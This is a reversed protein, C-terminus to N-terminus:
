LYDSLAGFVEDATIAQVCVAKRGCMAIDNLGCGTCPIHKSVIAGAGDQGWENWNLRDVHVSVTPVGRVAALHKPGSDNGVMARAGSLITDFRAPKILGFVRVRGDAGDVGALGELVEVERDAFIAVQYPTEALLRRCLATFRETPWRNIAHRAGLHLVLYGNPELGLARLTEPDPDPALPVAPRAPTAAIVLAEVLMSVNAAHSLRELQNVKDRSRAAIGFDLFTFRDPNFGVLYTAGTLLLLPRSEDGPSLDIALDIPRAGLLRRVRDEEAPDLRRRESVPDYSLSIPLVEDTLGSGEIIAQTGPQALVTLRAAPFLARLRALAPLSASVDGLQDVRMALISGIPRDFLTRAAPRVTAPLATVARDLEGPAHPPAALFSNSSALIGADGPEGVNVFLGAPAVKEGVSVSLWHRGRPLTAADIWINFVYLKLANHGPVPQLPARTTVPANGQGVQVSVEALTGLASVRGRIAVVGALLPEQAGDREIVMAGVQDLKIAAYGAGRLRSSVHEDKGLVGLWGRPETADLRIRNPLLAESLAPVEERTRAIGVADPAEGIAFPLLITGARRGADAAQKRAEPLSTGGTVSSYARIAGRYDGFEKLCNGIQVKLDERWPLWDLGRRYDLVAEVWEGAERARDARRVFPLGFHLRVLKAIKRFPSM